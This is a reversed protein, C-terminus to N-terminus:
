TFDRLLLKNCINMLKNIDKRLEIIEKQCSACSNDNLNNDLTKKTHLLKSAKGKKDSKNNISSTNQLNSETVTDRIHKNETSSTHKEITNELHLKSFSIDIKANLKTKGKIYKEMKKIALPLDKITLKKREAKKVIQFFSSPFQFELRIIDENEDPLHEKKSKNYTRIKISSQIIKGNKDKSKDYYTTNLFKTLYPRHKKLETMTKSPIRIKYDICIDMRKIFAHTQSSEVDQYLRVLDTLKTNYNEIGALELIYNNRDKNHLKIPVTDGYLSNIIYLEIWPYKSHNKVPKGFTNFWRQRDEKKTKNIKDVSYNENDIFFSLISPSAFNFSDIKAKTCRATRRLKEM